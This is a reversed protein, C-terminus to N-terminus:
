LNSLKHITQLRISGRIIASLTLLPLPPRGSTSRKPNKKGQASQLFCWAHNVPMSPVGRHGGEDKVKNNTNKRLCHGGNAQLPRPVTVSRNPSRRAHELGPGWGSHADRPFTHSTSSKSFRCSCIFHLSFSSEELGISVLIHVKRGGEFRIL